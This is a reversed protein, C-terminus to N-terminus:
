EAFCIGFFRRNARELGNVRVAICNKPSKPTPKLWDQPQFPNLLGHLHDSKLKLQEAYHYDIWSCSRCQYTDFYSCFSM